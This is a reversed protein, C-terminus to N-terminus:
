KIKNRLIKEREREREGREKEGKRMRMKFFTNIIGSILIAFIQINIKNELKM